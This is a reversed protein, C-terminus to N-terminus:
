QRSSSQVFPLFSGVTIRKGLETDVEWGQAL